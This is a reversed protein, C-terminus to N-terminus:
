KENIKSSPKFVLVKREPVDVVEGTRVNRAKRAKRVKTSFIGFRKIELRENSNYCDVVSQIFADLVRTVQTQQMDNEAAIKKVLDLKTM